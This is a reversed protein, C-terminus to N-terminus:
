NYQLSFTVDADAGGPTVSAATAKYRASFSLINTGNILTQATSFQTGNPKIVTGTKDSIEIGIGSASGSAGGATNSIALVTPDVSDVTGSFATSVQTSVTSDCDELEINFLVSNSRVGVATFLASRYEGMDVNQNNSSASVACGANVISGSFHIAGGNVTVAFAINVSFILLLSLVCYTVLSKNLM